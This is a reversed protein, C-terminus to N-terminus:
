TLLKLTMKELSYHNFTCFANQNMIVKKLGRKIESLNQGYVEPIVLFDNSKFKVEDQYIINTKNEFWNCRFGLNNHLIAASFGNRNLVDVHRYLCKIGGISKNDDPCM